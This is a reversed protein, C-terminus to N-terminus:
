VHRAVRSIREGSILSLLLGTGQVLNPLSLSFPFNHAFQSVERGARGARQTASSKSIACVLLTNLGAIFYLESMHSHSPISQFIGMGSGSVGALHRREKHVGTDVVYRVGPITISTEAINTSLICKRHGNPTPVFVKNQQNQPMSAYFPCVMVQVASFMLESM